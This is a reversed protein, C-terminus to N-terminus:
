AEVEAARSVRQEALRVVDSPNLDLAECAEFLLRLPWDKHGRELRSLVTPSTGICNALTMQKVDQQVRAERLIEAVERVRAAATRQQDSLATM